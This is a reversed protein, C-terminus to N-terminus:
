MFYGKTAGIIPEDDRSYVLKAVPVNSAVEEYCGANNPGPPNRYETGDPCQTTCQGQQVTSDVWRRAREATFRGSVDLDDYSSACRNQEASFWNNSSASPISGDTSWYIRDATVSMSYSEGADYPPRQQEVMTSMSGSDDFAILVKARAATSSADFDALYIETDDANAPFIANTLAFAIVALLALLSRIMTNLM